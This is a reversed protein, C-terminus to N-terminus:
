NLRTSRCARGDGGWAQNTNMVEYLMKPGIQTKQSFPKQVGAGQSKLAKTLLILEYKKASQAM